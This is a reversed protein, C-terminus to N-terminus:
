TLDIDKSSSFIDTSYMWNYRLQRSFLYVKNSLFIILVNEVSFAIAMNFTIVYHLVVAPM